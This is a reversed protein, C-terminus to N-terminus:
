VLNANQGQNLSLQIKDFNECEWSQGDKCVGFVLNSGNQAPEVKEGQNLNSAYELAFRVMGHFEGGLLLWPHWNRASDSLTQM